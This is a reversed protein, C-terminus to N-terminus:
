SRFVEKKSVVFNFLFAAITALFLASITGLDLWKLCVFMTSTNVFLSALNSLFFRVFEM